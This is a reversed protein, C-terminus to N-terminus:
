QVLEELLSDKVQGQRMELRDQSLQVSEVVATEKNFLQGFSYVVATYFNGKYTRVLKFEEEKDGVFPRLNWALQIGVFVLIVTWVKFIAVGTQPYIDKKDCAYKLADIILRVGFIGSFIFIAIHLLQLFYYNESTLLFFLIVPAFSLVITASLVFGSLIIITMQRICMKSGLVRQIIYFSPFCVLLTAAFLVILKIGSVLSQLVSHYGGMVLGYLFIFSCIILIQKLIYQNGKHESISNFMIDRDQFVTFVENLHKIIKM